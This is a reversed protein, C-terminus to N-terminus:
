LVDSDISESQICNGTEIGVARLLADFEKCEQVLRCFGDFRVAVYDTLGPQSVVHCHALVICAADVAEEAEGKCGARATHGIGQLVDAAVGSFDQAVQHKFQLFDVVGSDKSREEAVM